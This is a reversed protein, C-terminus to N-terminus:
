LCIRQRFGAIDRRVLDVPGKLRRAGRQQDVIHLLIEEVEPAFVARHHLFHHGIDGGQAVEAFLVANRHVVGGLRFLLTIFIPRQQIIHPPRAQGARRLLLLHNGRQRRIFVIGHQHFPAVARKMARRQLLHQFLGTAVLQDDGANVGMDAAHGGGGISEHAIDFREKDGVRQCIEATFLM